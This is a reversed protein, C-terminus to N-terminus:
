FPNRICRRSRCANMTAKDNHHATNNDAHAV